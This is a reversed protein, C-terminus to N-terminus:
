FCFNYKGLGVDDAIICSQQQFWCFLLWNLGEVQYKKLVHNNKFGSLGDPLNPQIMEWKLPIGIYTRPFFSAEYKEIFYSFDQLLKLDEVNEWTADSYSLSKWKVLYFNQDNSLIRDIKKFLSLDLTRIEASLLLNLNNIENKEKIESHLFSKNKFKVLYKEEDVKFIKEIKL